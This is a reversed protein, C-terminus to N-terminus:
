LWGLAGESGDAGWSGDESLLGGGSGGLFELGISTGADGGVARVAGRKKVRGLSLFNEREVLSLDTGAEVRVTVDCTFLVESM